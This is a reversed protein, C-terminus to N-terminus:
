VRRLKLLRLLDDQRKGLGFGDRFGCRSSVLWASGGERGRTRRIKLRGANLQTMRIIPFGRNLSRIDSQRRFAADAALSIQCVSHDDIDKLRLAGWGDILRGRLKQFM